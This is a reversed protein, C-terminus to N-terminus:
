GLTVVPTPPDGFGFTAVGISLSFLDGETAGNFECLGSIEDNGVVVEIEVPVGTPIVANTESWSTYITDRIPEGDILYTIDISCDDLLEQEMEVVLAIRSDFPDDTSPIEVVISASAEEALAPFPELAVTAPAGQNPDSQHVIVAGADHGTDIELRTGAAVTAVEAEIECRQECADPWPILAPLEIIEGNVLAQLPVPNPGINTQEDTASVTGLSLGPSASDAPISAEIRAIRYPWFADEVAPTTGAPSALQHVSGDIGITAEESGVLTSRAEATITVPGTEDINTVALEVEADQEFYLITPNTRDLRARLLREDGGDTILVSIQPEVGTESQVDWSFISSPPDSELGDTGFQFRAVPNDGDVVVAAEASIVTEEPLCAATILAVALLFGFLCLRGAPKKAGVNTIEM